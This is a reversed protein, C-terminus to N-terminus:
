PIKAEILSPNMNFTEPNIDVFVPRAGAHMMMDVTAIFTFPTTIVEAGPGIGLALMALHLADTGSAVGVAHKVGIFAAMEAEFAKVEPGLIFQGSAITGAIAEEIEGKISRYQAQLDALPIEM